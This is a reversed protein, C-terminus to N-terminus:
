GQVHLKKLPFLPHVRELDLGARSDKGPVTPHGSYDGAGLVGQGESTFIVFLISRKPRTTAHSFQKAVELVTAVGSADDMAGNYITKGKIPVGVGLHDLHASVLVYESALGPASGPLKAVFDPAEVQSTEAVGNATVSKGLAFRPLPKQADALALM